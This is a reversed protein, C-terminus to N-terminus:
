AVHPRGITGLMQCRSVMTTRWEFAHEASISRASQAAGHPTLCMQSVTQCRECGHIQGARRAGMQTIGVWKGMVNRWSTAALFRDVDAASIGESVHEEPTSKLASVMSVEKEGLLDNEDLIQSLLHSALTLWILRSQYSVM